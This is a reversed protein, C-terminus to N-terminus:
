FLVMASIAFIYNSVIFIGDNVGGSILFKLSDKKILDGSLLYPFGMKIIDIVLHSIILM